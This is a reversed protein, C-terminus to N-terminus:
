ASRRGCGRGPRRELVSQEAARPWRPSGVSRIKGGPVDLDQARFAVSGGPPAGSSVFLRHVARRILWTTGRARMHVRAAHRRRCFRLAGVSHTSALLEAGTAGRRASCCRNAQVRRHPEPDSASWRTARAGFHLLTTTPATATPIWPTSSTLPAPQARVASRAGHRVLRLRRQDRGRVRAGVDADVAAHRERDGLYSRAHRRAATWRAHVRARGLRRSTRAPSRTRSGRVPRPRRRWPAAVAAAFAADGEHTALACADGLCPTRSRVRLRPSSSTACPTPNRDRPLRAGRCSGFAGRPAFLTRTEGAWGCPGAAPRRPRAAAEGALGHLRRVWEIWAEHERQNVPDGPNHAHLRPLRHVADRRRQRQARTSGWRRRPRCPPDEMHAMRVDAGEGETAYTIRPSSAPLVGRDGRGAFGGM